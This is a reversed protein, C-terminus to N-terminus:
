ATAPYAPCNEIEARFHAAFDSGTRISDVLGQFFVQLKRHAKLYAISNHQDLEAFSLLKVSRSISRLRLASALDSSNKAGFVTALQPGPRQNCDCFPEFAPPNQCLAVPDDMTPYRGSISLGIRANFHQAAAIAPVGGMSVGATGINAYRAVNVIRGLTTFMQTLSRGYGPLGARFDYGPARRLLVVDLNPHNLEALITCAAAFLVGDRGAFLILLNREKQPPSARYFTVHPGHNVVRYRQPQEKTLRHWLVARRAVDRPVDQPAYGARMKAYLRKLEWPPLLRAADSLLAIRAADDRAGMILDLLAHHSIDERKPAAMWNLPADPM